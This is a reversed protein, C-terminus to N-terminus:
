LDKLMMKLVAILDPIDRKVTDFIIDNKIGTYHHAVIDRMRIVESWPIEPYKRLYQGQTKNDLMKLNEGIVVFNMCIADFLAESEFNGSVQDKHTIHEARSKAAEAAKLVIDLTDLIEENSLSLM